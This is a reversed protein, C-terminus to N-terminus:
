QPLTKVGNWLTTQYQHIQSEDSRLSMKVDKTVWFPEEEHRTSKMWLVPILYILSHSHRAYAGSDKAVAM